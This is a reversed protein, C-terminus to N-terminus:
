KKGKNDVRGSSIKRLHERRVKQAAKHAERKVDARIKLTMRTSAGPPDRHRRVVRVSEVQAPSLQKANKRIRSSM